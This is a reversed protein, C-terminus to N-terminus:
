TSPVIGATASPTEEGLLGKLELCVPHSTGRSYLGLGVAKETNLERRNCKLIFFHVFGIFDGYGMESDNEGGQM